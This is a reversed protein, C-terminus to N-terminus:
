FAQNFLSDREKKWFEALWVLDPRSNPNQKQCRRVVEKWTMPIDDSWSSWKLEVNAYDDLEEVAELKVQELLLFMTRGISYVEALEVAKPCHLNWDAFVIWAPHSLRNNVRPPGKYPMYLPSDSKELVELM